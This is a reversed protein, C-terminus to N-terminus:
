SSLNSMSRYKYDTRVNLITKLNWKLWYSLWIYIYMYIFKSLAIKLCYPTFYLFPSDIDAM